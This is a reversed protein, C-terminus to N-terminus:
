DNDGAGEKPVRLSLTTVFQSKFLDTFGKVCGHLAHLADLDDRALAQVPLPQARAQTLCGDLRGLLEDRLAQAGREVLLDDFGAARGAEDFSGTLGARLAVLNETLARTSLGSRPAEALEPCSTSLCAPTIGGPAGLKLDKVQRDVSFLGAFLEDLADKPTRWPSGMSGAKELADGFVTWRAQARRTTRELSRAAGAAWARRREALRPTAALAAWSGDAVITAGGPCASAGSANFLQEELVALGKSTVLAADFFADDPTTGAVLAADVRCLNTVPWSYIEDRLGEGMTVRSAAGLPGLQLVEARQWAVFAAEFRRQAAARAEGEAAPSAAQWAEVAGRLATVEALAQALTPRAVNADFASLAARQLAEGPDPAAAQPLCGWGGASVIILVIRLNM